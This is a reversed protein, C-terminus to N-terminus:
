KSVLIKIKFTFPNCACAEEGANAVGDSPMVVGGVLDFVAHEAAVACTLARTYVYSSKNHKHTIRVQQVTQSM